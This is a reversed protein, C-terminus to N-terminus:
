PTFGGIVIYDVVVSQASGTYSLKFGNVLKDSVEVDGANVSASKIQTIVAYNTDPLTNALAVSTLSDNFPFKQSNTLTKTGYEAAIKNQRVYNLLLGFSIKRDHLEAAQETDTYGKAEDLAAAADNAAANKALKMALIDM